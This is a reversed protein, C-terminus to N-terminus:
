EAFRSFCPETQDMNQGHGAQRDRDRTALVILDPRLHCGPLQDIRLLAMRNENRLLGCHEIQMDRRAGLPQRWRLASPQHIEDIM